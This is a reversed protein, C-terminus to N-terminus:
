KIGLKEIIRSVAYEDSKANMWWYITFPSIKTIRAWESVAKKDGSITLFRTRRCNKMM